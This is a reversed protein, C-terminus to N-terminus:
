QETSRLALRGTTDMSGSEIKNIMKEAFRRYTGDKGKTYLTLYLHAQRLDGVRIYLKGANYYGQTFEPDKEVAKLNYLIAKNYGWFRDATNDVPLLTLAMEQYVAAPSPSRIAAHQMVEEYKDFEKKAAHVRGLNQWIVPRDFGLSIAKRMNKEAFAYDGEEFAIVGLASYSKAFGPSNEIADNWFAKPDCWVGVREITPIGLLLVAVVPVLPSVRPIMTFLVGVILSFGVMPLYLYREGLPTWPINGLYAMVPPVIGAFVILLPLLLSRSHRLLLVAGVLALILAVIAVSKDFSLITFNLPFPWVLKQLYFGFAAVADFLSPHAEGPKAVSTIVSGIGRDIVAPKGGSRLLMYTIFSFALAAFMLIVDRTEGKRREVLLYISGAFFITIGAEKSWLSCMIAFFMFFLVPVSVNERHRVMLIFTLLSFLTCLLDPRASIWIVPETNIPHLLFLLASILPLYGARTSGAFLSHALYYVLMSNILHLAINVLHFWEPSRGALAVNASYSLVALPRYYESGGGLFLERLTHSGTTVSSIMSIDDISLFGAMIAGGYAVIGAAVITIIHAVGAAM